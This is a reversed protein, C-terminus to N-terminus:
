LGGGGRGNRLGALAVWMVIKRILIFVDSMLTHYPSVIYVNSHVVAAHVELRPDLMEALPPRWPISSRIHSRSSRNKVYAFVYKCSKLINIAMNHKFPTSFGNLPCWHGKKRGKLTSVFSGAGEAHTVGDWPHAGSGAGGRGGPDAGSREASHAM